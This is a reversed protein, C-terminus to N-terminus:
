HIYVDHVFVYCWERPQIWMKDQKLHRKPKPASTSHLNQDKQLHFHRSRVFMRMLFLLDELSVVKWSPLFLMTPTPRWYGFKLFRWSDQLNVKRCLYCTPFDVMKQLQYKTKWCVWRSHFWADIKSLKQVEGLNYGKPHRTAEFFSGFLELHSSSKSSIPKRGGPLHLKKKWKKKWWFLVLHNQHKFNSGPFNKIMCFRTGASFNLEM